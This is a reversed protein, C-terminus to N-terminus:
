VVTLKNNLGHDSSKYWDLYFYEHCFIFVQNLRSELTIGIHNWRLELAIEIYNFRSQFAYNRSKDRPTLRFCLKRSTIKKYTLILKM